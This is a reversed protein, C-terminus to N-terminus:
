MDHTNLSNITHQGSERGIASLMESSKVNTECFVAVAFKLAAFAHACGEGARLKQLQLSLEGRVHVEGSQPADLDRRVQVQGLFLNLDPKLVPPHFVLLLALAAAM